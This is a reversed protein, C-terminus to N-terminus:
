AGSIGYSFAPMSSALSKAAGPMISSAMSLPTMHLEVLSGLGPLM